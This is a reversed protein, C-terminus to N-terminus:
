ELANGSARHEETCRGVSLGERVNSKTRISSIPSSIDVVTETSGESDLARTKACNIQQGVSNGALAQGLCLLNNVSGFSVGLRADRVCDDVGDREGHSHTELGANREQEFHKTSINLAPEWFM